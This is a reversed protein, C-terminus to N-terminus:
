KLGRLSYHLQKEAKQTQDDGWRTAMVHQVGPESLTSCDAATGAASGLVRGRLVFWRTM